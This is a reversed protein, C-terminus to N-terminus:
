SFNEWMYIYIQSLKSLLKINNYITTDFFLIV